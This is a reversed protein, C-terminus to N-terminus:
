EFDGLTPSGSTNPLPLWVWGDNLGKKKAQMGLKKKARFLTIEAIGRERAERKIDESDKPAKVVERLFAEASEITSESEGLLEDATIDITGEVWTLRATEIEVGGERVVTKTLRFALAPAPAAANAKTQAVVRRAPDLKDPAVLFALRAKGIVSISGMSRYLANRSKSDKNLHVLALVAVGNEDAFRNLKGLLANVEAPDASKTGGFYSMLPDIIVLSLDPCQRIADALLPVVKLTFDYDKGDVRVAKLRKVKSVDAGLALLRPKITDESDDEDTILLTTGTKPSHGDPFATGTSVRAAIDLSLFSKGQGPDGCILTLKGRALRGPWIWHVSRASVENFSELILHNRPEDEPPFQALLWTVADSEWLCDAPDCAEPQHEVGWRQALAKVAKPYNGAHEFHAFLEFSDHSGEGVPDNPSFSYMRSSELVHVSKDSDGGNPHRWFEGGTPIYGYQSLLSDIFNESNFRAILDNGSTGSEYHHGNGNHLPRSIMPRSPPAPRVPRPPPVPKAPATNFTRMVQFVRHLDELAILPPDYVNGHEVTYLNGSKHLSPPMVCQKKDGVIEVIVRKSWEDDLYQALKESKVPETTRVHLHYGPSRTRGSRVRPWQLVDIGTETLVKAAIEGLKDGGDFDFVLRNRSMSGMMVGYGVVEIGNRMAWGIQGKLDSLDWTNIGPDNYGKMLPLKCDAGQRKLLIVRDGATITLDIPGCLANLHASHRQVDTEM